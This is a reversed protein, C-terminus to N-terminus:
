CDEEPRDSLEIGGFHPFSLHFTAADPARNALDMEMRLEDDDVTARFTVRLGTEGVRLLTSFGNRTPEVAELECDRCGYARDGVKLRSLHTKDPRALVNRDIEAV